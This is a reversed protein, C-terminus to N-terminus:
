GPICWSPSAPPVPVTLSTLGYPLGREMFFTAAPGEKAGSELRAMRGVEGFDRTWSSCDALSRESDACFAEDTLARLHLLAM